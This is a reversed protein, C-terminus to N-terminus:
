VSADALVGDLESELHAAIELSATAAPSPANLVHLQRDARQVLFDDVLSGDRRLAQARVGAPAPVLDAATIGPVLRSLSAAFRARSLSRIIEGAGPVINRRGLRWLGPWSLSGRLDALNVDRWTYGERALALVANPGAHVGGHIMTTLHVGLFPFRPDPVPYILTRVLDAKDPVLEFYEGRFPVIRAQPVVNCADALRDAHLGGCVVLADAVIDERETGGDAGTVDVRARVRGGVTRAGHFTRGFRLQGGGDAIQRALVECVGVYDVIGTSEVRLARVCAVNPEYERAEATDILRAPVGNAEARRALEALGPLETDDVAVVLKGCTRVAVGHDQAFATMSAAGATGLRAKLSGPAYYLGSHIVGSNRGTQHRAVSLEKDLVIVEDGRRVLRAATALGLIGAGVVLVKVMTAGETM